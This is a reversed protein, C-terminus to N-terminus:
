VQKFLQHLSRILGTPIIASLSQDAAESEIPLNAAGEAEEQNQNSSQSQGTNTSETKSEPTVMVSVTAPTITTVGAPVEIPAEVITQEKIGGVDVLAQVSDLQNIADQDGIVAAHNGSQIELQYDYNNDQNIAQTQIPISTGPHNLNVRVKIRAPEVNVDLLQGDSDSVLVPADITVDESLNNPLNVKATVSAIKAMTSAAAQIHVTEPELNYSALSYGEAIQGEDLNVAIDFHNSELVEINISVNKPNVSYQLESPLNVVELQIYHNGPGLQSLDETQVKFENSELTQRILSSPGTLEINATEPIGTVYYDEINGQVYVPVNSVTETRNDSVNQFFAVPNDSYREAKVFIFLFLALVLSLLKLMSRNEYIRNM